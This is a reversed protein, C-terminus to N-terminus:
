AYEIGAPRSNMLPKYARTWEGFMAIQEQVLDIWEVHDRITQAVPSDKSMFRHSLTVFAQVTTLVDILLQYVCGRALLSGSKIPFERLYMTTCDINALFSALGHLTRELDEVADISLVTNELSVVCRLLTSHSAFHKNSFLTAVRAKHENLTCRLSALRDFTVSTGLLIALVADESPFHPLLPPLPPFPPLPPPLPICRHSTSRLGRSLMNYLTVSICLNVSVVEIFFTKVRKVLKSKGVCTITNRLHRGPCTGIAQLIVPNGTKKIRFTDKLTTLTTLYGM